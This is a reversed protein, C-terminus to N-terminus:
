SYFLDTKFLSNPISVLQIDFKLTPAITTDASHIRFSIQWGDDFTAILTNLSEPKFSLDILRKPLKVKRIRHKPKIKGQPKNLSGNINFGHIEVITKGKVIKYFDNYGILYHVIKQCFNNVDRSYMNLLETKWAVMLPYYVEKQKDSFAESWKTKKNEKKIAKIKDFVKSIMRWYEKSCPTNIWKDGFDLTHSLRSHKLARHNNKASFGIQWKSKSRIFIVDRVDGKQGAQDSALEIQLLDKTNMSHLLRPEIDLIFGLSVSAAALMKEQDGIEILDFNSKANAYAKNRILDVNTHELIYNYYTIALAYEFAKGNKNQKSM